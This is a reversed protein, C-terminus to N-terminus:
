PQSEFCADFFQVMWQGFLPADTKAGASAHAQALTHPDLQDQLHMLLAQMFTSSMEPHYQTTWLHPSVWMSGNPCAESGGLSVANDPLQTVQENHAAMLVTTPRAPQMWPTTTHWHTPATGLGWHGPREVTGGLAKAIAQHGFCLGITPKQAAHLSRIFDLLDALWPLTADNVSAPSGTIVFADWLAAQAAQSGNSLIDGQTVDLVQWQWHPRLPRLLDIVKQGDNPFHSAFASDDNNTLLVAIRRNM